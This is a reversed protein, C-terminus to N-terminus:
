GTRLRNGTASYFHQLIRNTWHYGDSSNIITGNDGVAVLQGGGYTVGLLINGQPSPFRWSWNSLPDAPLHIAVTLLTLAWFRKAAGTKILSSIERSKRNMAEQRKMAEDWRGSKCCM